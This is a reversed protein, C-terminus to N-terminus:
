RPRSAAVAWAVSGAGGFALMALVWNSLRWWPRFALSLSVSTPAPLMSAWWCLVMCVVAALFGAVTGVKASLRWDPPIAQSRQVGAPGDGSPVVSDTAKRRLLRAVSLRASRVVGPGAVLLGAILLIWSVVYSVAALRYWLWANGTLGAALSLFTPALLIYSAVVLVVGIKVLSTKKDGPEM